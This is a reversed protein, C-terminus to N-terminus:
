ARRSQLAAWILPVQLPLRAIVATVEVAPSTPDRLVNLAHQVNAPFIAILLLVSAGAAWRRGTVLGGACILEAVGSLRVIALPEPLLHPVIAAYIEPRVLHLVGSLTFLGALAIPARRRWTGPAPTSGQAM